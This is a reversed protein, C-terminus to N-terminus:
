GGGPLPHPRVRVAILAHLSQTERFDSSRESLKSATSWLCSLEEGDSKQLECGAVDTLESFSLATFTARVINLIQQANQHM